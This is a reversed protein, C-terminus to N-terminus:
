TLDNGRVKSARPLNVTSVSNVSSALDGRSHLASKSLLQEYLAEIDSAYRDASFADLARATAKRSVDAYREPSLDTVSKISNALSTIGGPQVLFGNEGHTILEPIGGIASAIVIKGRAQAELISKPANEYWVSPLVVAFAAEVHAWLDAGSKRGVFYAQCGCKEAVLTLRAADPGDGVLVVPRKQLSAAQLLVDIGKEPSLRGFYLFYQGFLERLAEIQGSQVEADAESQFANPVYHLKEQPFGSEAHKDRIFRSPMVYADIADLYSGDRWHLWGDLAYVSSAAFSDHVCKQTACNWQKGGVCRECVGNRPTYFFYAPCILKYDHATYVVPINRRTTEILISPTLQHYMGHIHVVDPSFHELLRAFQTQAARSYVFRAAAGIRSIPSKSVSEFDFYPPYFTDWPTPENRPHAMAFNACQWGRRQFLEIHDLYVAEAGGKRWHYRHVSLLRRSRTM